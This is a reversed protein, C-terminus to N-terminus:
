GDDGDDDDDDSQLTATPVGGVCTVAYVLGDDDDDDGTGDFAIAAQPAPGPDVAGTSWGQAPVWWTLLAQDGECVAQFTGGDGGLVHGDAGTSPATELQGTPTEASPQESASPSAESSASPEDAAPSPTAGGAEALASSVEDESMPQEPGALSGGQALAVAGIGATMAVAAAAAWGSVVWKRQM